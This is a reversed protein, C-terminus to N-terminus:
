RDVKFYLIKDEDIEVIYKFIIRVFFYKDGIIRLMEDRTYYQTMDGDVGDVYKYKGDVKSYDRDIIQELEDSKLQRVVSDFDVYEINVKFAGKKFFVDRPLQVGNFTPIKYVDSELQKVSEEVHYLYANRFDPKFELIKELNEKTYEKVNEYQEKPLGGDILSNYISRSFMQPFREIHRDIISDSWRTDCLFQIQKYTKDGFELTGDYIPIEKSSEIFAIKLKNRYENFIEESKKHEELESQITHSIHEDKFKMLEKYVDTNAVYKNLSFDLKFFDFVPLEVNNKEINEQNWLKNLLKSIILKNKDDLKYIDFGQMDEFRYVLNDNSLIFGLWWKMIFKKSFQTETSSSYTINFPAQYWSFGDHCDFIDFLSTLLNQIKIKDLHEITTNFNKQWSSVGSYLENVGNNTFVFDRIKEKNDGSISTEM